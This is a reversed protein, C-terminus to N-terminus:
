EDEDEEAMSNSLEEQHRRQEQVEELQKKAARIQKQVIMSQMNLELDEPSITVLEENSLDDINYSIRLNKNREAKEVINRVGRANGFDKTKAKGDIVVKAVM